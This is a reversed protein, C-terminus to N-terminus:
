WFNNRYHNKAVRDTIAEGHLWKQKCLHKPKFKKCAIWTFEQRTVSVLQLTPTNHQTYSEIRM